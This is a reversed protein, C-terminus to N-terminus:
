TARRAPPAQREYSEAKRERVRMRAGPEMATLDARSVVARSPHRIPRPSALAYPTQSLIASGGDVIRTMTVGPARDPRVRVVRGAQNSRGDADVVEITLTKKNIGPSINRAVITPRIGRTLVLDVAGDGDYDYVSVPGFSVDDLLTIPDPEFREGNNLLIFPAAQSGGAVVVDERGDGNFDGVNVGYVDSNLYEPMVDRREFRKGNYEWLAPGFVPHHLILDLNGDNNWDIFKIGEDFDGPLGVANSCGAAALLLALAALTKM